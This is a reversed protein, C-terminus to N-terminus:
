MWQFEEATAVVPVETPKTEVIVTTQQAEGAISRAFAMTNPKRKAYWRPDNLSRTFRFGANSLAASTKGDVPGPFRIEVGNFRENETVRIGGIAAIGAPIASVPGPRMGIDPKPKPRQKAEQAEVARKLAEELRKEREADPKLEKCEDMVGIVQGPTPTVWEGNVIVSDRTLKTRM